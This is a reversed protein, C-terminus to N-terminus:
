SASALLPSPDHGVLRVNGQSTTCREQWLNSKFLAINQDGIARDAFNTRRPNAIRSLINIDRSQSHQGTRHIRMDM